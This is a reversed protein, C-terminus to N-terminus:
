RMKQMTVTTIPSDGPTRSYSVWYKAKPYRVLQYMSGNAKAPIEQGLVTLADPAGSEKGIYNVSIARVLGKGDYYVQASENDSFVFFDQKKGKEKLHDMKGRVEDASMGITVGKYNTFVPMVVAPSAKEKTVAAAATATNGAVQPSPTAAPTPQAEQANAYPAALLLAGVLALACSLQFFKKTLKYRMQESVGEYASLKWEKM